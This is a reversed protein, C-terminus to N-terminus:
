GGEAITGDVLGVFGGPYVLAVDVLFDASAADPADAQKVSGDMVWNGDGDTLYAVTIVGTGVAQVMDAILHLGAADVTGCPRAFTISALLTGTPVAGGVSEPSTYLDMRGATAAADLTQQVSTSRALKLIPSLKM